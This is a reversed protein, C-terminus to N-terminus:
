AAVKLAQEIASDPVQFWSQKGKFPIPVAFQRPNKLIWGWRGPAYNGYMRELAPLELALEATPRVDVLDVVGVVCGFPLRAPLRGLTHEVSAFTRQDKTWLKSAHVAFTGRYGTRWHRTEVGKVGIVCATAWPQWLSITRM